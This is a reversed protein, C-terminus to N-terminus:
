RGAPRPLSAQGYREGIRAPDEKGRKIRQTLLWSALPKAAANSALRYLQLVLPVRDRM